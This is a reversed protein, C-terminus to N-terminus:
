IMFLTEQFGKDIGSERETGQLQSATSRGGQRSCGSPPNAEGGSARSCGGEQDRSREAKPIHLTQAEVEIWDRALRFELGKQQQRPSVACLMNGVEVPDPDLGGMAPKTDSIYMPRFLNFGSM